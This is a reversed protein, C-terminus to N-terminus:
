PAEKIEKYKSPITFPMEVAEDLAIRNYKLQLALKLAVSNAQLYISRAIPKKNLTEFDTYTTTVTREGDNVSLENNITKFAENTQITFSLNNVIGNLVYGVSNQKAAEPYQLAQDLMNGVLLSQLNDYSIEESAFRYVFDFPRDVFTGNLRNMVKFREPTILVRAAEIGLVTTISIWIAKGNKIRINLTADYNDKNIAVSSKAKGSFTQFLLQNKNIEEVVFPVAVHAAKEPENAKVLAKKSKCSIVLFASAICLLTVLPFSAWRHQTLQVLPKHNSWISRPM